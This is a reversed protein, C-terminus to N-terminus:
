GGKAWTWVGATNPTKKERIAELWHMLLDIELVGGDWGGREMELSAKGACGTM